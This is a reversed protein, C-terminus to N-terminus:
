LAITSASSTVPSKGSKSIKGQNSTMEMDTFFLMSTLQSAFNTNLEMKKRPRWERKGPFTSILERVMGETVKNNGPSGPIVM